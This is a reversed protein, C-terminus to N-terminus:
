RRGGLFMPQQGSLLQSRLDTDVPASPQTFGASLSLSLNSTPKFEVGAQVSTALTNSTAFGPTVLSTFVDPNSRLTNVSGFLTVPTDGVGKFSYGYQAGDATLGTLNLGPAGAGGLAFGSGFASVPTSSSRFSFGKRFGDEDPAEGFYQTEANGGFGVAGGPIAYQFPAVQARVPSVPLMLAAVALGFLVAFKSLQKM